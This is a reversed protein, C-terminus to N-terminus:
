KVLSGQQQLRKAFISLSDLDKNSVMLKAKEGNETGNFFGEVWMGEPRKELDVHGLINDLGNHQHQWVLPLSKGDMHAFAGEDIVRGDTCRVGFKTAWGSFDSGM